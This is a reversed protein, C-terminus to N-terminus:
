PSNQKRAPQVRLRSGTEEKCPRSSSEETKQMLAAQSNSERLALVTQEEESMRGLDYENYHSNIRLEPSRSMRPRTRAEYLSPKSSTAETKQLLVGQRNSESLALAMQEEQSMRCLDYGNYHSNIQLEPSRSMRPRASAEELSPKSSTAETKQLLVGQRNSESLALAMQEEQSM